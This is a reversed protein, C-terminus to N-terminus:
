TEILFSVMHTPVTPFAPVLRSPPAIDGYGLLGAYLQALRDFRNGTSEIWAIDATMGPATCCHHTESIDLRHNVRAVLATGRAAALEECIVASATDMVGLLYGGGERRLLGNLASIDRLQDGTVSANRPRIGVSTLMASLHSTLEHAPALDAQVLLTLPRRMTGALLNEAAHSALSGTALASGAMLSKIFNRRDM